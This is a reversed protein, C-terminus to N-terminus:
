TWSKGLFIESIAAGTVGDAPKIAYVSVAINSKKCISCHFIIPWGQEPPTINTLIINTRM